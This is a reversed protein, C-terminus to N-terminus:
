PRGASREDRSGGSREDRAGDRAIPARAEGKPRSFFSRGDRGESAARAAGAPRSRPSQPKTM